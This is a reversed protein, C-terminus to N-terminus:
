RIAIECNDLSDIVALSEVIIGAERLREGGHQFAKEIVFGMGALEAGAQRVLDIIGMAANGNALFDDIFLM